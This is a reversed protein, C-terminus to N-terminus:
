HPDIGVNTNGNDVNPDIHGGRGEAQEDALLLNDQSFSTHSGTHNAYRIGGMGGWFFAEEAATFCLLLAM